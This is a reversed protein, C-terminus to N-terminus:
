ATAVEGRFTTRRMEDTMCEHVVYPDCGPGHTPAFPRDSGKTPDGVVFFEMAEHTEVKVICDFLWRTWAARNYTAAPVIFFHYVHFDARRQGCGECRIAKDSYSDVCRILVRLTLGGAASGHTSAPDRENDVLSFHWGDRYHLGDVIEALPTPYPAYQRMEMTM